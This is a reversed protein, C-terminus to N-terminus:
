PSVCIIDRNQPESYSEMLYEFYFAIITDSLWRPGQLLEIDSRHLLIKGCSVLNNDPVSSTVTKSESLSEKRSYRPTSSIEALSDPHPFFADQSPDPFHKRRSSGPLLFVEDLSACQPLTGMVSAGNGRQIALSIRQILFNKARSDGTTDFLMKGLSDIFKRAESCWPGFTEVAFPIFIYGDDIIQKYKNTKKKAARN